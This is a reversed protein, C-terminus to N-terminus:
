PEIFDMFLETYLMENYVRGSVMKKQIANKTDLSLAKDVSFETNVLQGFNLKKDTKLELLGSYNYDSLNIININQTDESLENLIEDIVCKSIQDTIDFRRLM